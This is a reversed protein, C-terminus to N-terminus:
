WQKDGYKNFDQDKRSNGESVSYMSHQKAQPANRANFHDFDSSLVDAVSSIPCEQRQYPSARTCAEAKGASGYGEKSKGIASQLPQHSDLQNEVRNKVENRPKQSNQDDIERMKSRPFRSVFNFM